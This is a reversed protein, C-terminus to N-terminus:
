GVAARPFTMSPYMQRPSDIARRSPVMLEDPETLAEHSASMMPRLSRDTRYAWSSNRDKPQIPFSVPEFCHFSFRCPEHNQM